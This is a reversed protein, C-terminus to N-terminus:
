SLWRKLLSSHHLRQLSIARVRSESHRLKGDVAHVGKGRLRCGVFNDLANREKVKELPVVEGPGHHREGYQDGSEVLWALGRGIERAGDEKRVRLRGEEITM